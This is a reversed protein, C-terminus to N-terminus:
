AAQQALATEFEIPSRCGLASHLRKADYIEKIFRPQRTKVDVFTEYGAFHADKVKLTKM